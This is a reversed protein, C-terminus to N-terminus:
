PHIIVKGFIDRSLLREQAAVMEPLPYTSDIVAEMKGQGVQDFVQNIESPVAGVSFLLSIERFYLM